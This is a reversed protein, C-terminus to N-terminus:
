ESELMVVALAAIGEGRGTFGLGDATTAKVWVRAREIGLARAIEAIMEDRYPSLRPEEAVVTGDVNGISWGARSVIRATEVLIDASSADRWREDGPFSSGLDSVGAASLAADAIAHSLVDADSHGSLGPAGPIPVGGLVLPRRPDFAHADVGLGVRMVAM